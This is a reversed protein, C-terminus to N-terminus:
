GWISLIIIESHLIGFISTFIHSMKAGLGGIADIKQAVWICISSDQNIAIFYLIM